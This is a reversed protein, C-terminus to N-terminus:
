PDKKCVENALKKADNIKKGADDLKKQADDLKRIGNNAMLDNGAKSNYGDKLQLKDIDKGLNYSLEDINKLRQELKQRDADVKDICQSAKDIDDTTIIKM